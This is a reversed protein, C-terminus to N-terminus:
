RVRSGRRGRHVQLYMPHDAPHIPDELQLEVVRFCDGYESGRTEPNEAYWEVLDKVLDTELVWKRAVWRDERGEVLM